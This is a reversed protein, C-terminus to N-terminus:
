TKAALRVFEEPSVAKVPSRRFDSLNRTVIYTAGASEAATAVLADEFDALPLKLARGVGATDLPAIQMGAVLDAVFERAKAAGTIRGMLYNATALSHVALVGSGPHNLSWAVAAGSAEQLGPRSLAVDVLVNTDLLIKV